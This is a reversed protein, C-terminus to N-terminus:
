WEQEDKESRRQMWDQRAPSVKDREGAQIVIVIGVVLAGLLLLGLLCGGVLLLSVMVRRGEQEL